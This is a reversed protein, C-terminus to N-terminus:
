FDFEIFRYHIKTGSIELFAISPKFGNRPQVCSGPNLYLVGNEEKAFPRHTHGSIVVKIGATSPDLDLRGLDHLVYLTIGGIEVIETTGMHRSWESRDMNGRAATVPAIGQLRNLIEPTDIDGAHVIHRVEKLADEVPKPLTGHTDSIIGVILRGAHSANDIM